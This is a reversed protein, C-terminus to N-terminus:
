IGSRAYRPLLRPRQPKCRRRLKEKGSIIAPNVFREIDSQKTLKRCRLLREDDITAEYYVQLVEGNEKGSSEFVVYMLGEHGNAYYTHSTVEPDRFREYKSLDVKLDSLTRSQKFSVSIEIVTDLPVDWGNLCRGKSYFIQAEENEIDYREYKANPRGLLREVDARTSHLPVIGRWEKAYTVTSALSLVISSVLIKWSIM